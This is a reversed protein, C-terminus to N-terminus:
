AYFVDNGGSNVDVIHNLFEGSKGKVEAINKKRKSWAYPRKMQYVIYADLSTKSPDLSGGNVEDQYKTAYNKVQIEYIDSPSYFFMWAFLALLILISFRRIYETMIQKM